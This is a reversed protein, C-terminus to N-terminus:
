DGSGDNRLIRPVGLTSAGGLVSGILLGVSVQSISHCEMYVRSWAVVLAIIVLLVGRSIMYQKKKRILLISWFMATFGLCQAHGSPMGYSESVRVYEPVIGCGTEVGDVLCKGSPRPERIIIKLIINLLDNTTLGMLFVIFETNETFLAGIVGLQYITVPSIRLIFLVYHILKNM